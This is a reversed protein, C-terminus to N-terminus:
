HNELDGLPIKLALASWTCEVFAVDVTNGIIESNRRARSLLVLTSIAAERLANTRLTRDKSLEALKLKSELLMRSALVLDTSSFKNAGREASILVASFYVVSHKTCEDLTAKAEEINGTLCAIQAAIWATRYALESMDKITADLIQRNVAVTYIDRSAKLCARMADVHAQADIANGALEAHAQAQLYCALSQQKLNDIGRAGYKGWSAVLADQWNRALEACQKLARLTAEKDGNVEALRLSCEAELYKLRDTDLSLFVRLPIKRAIMENEIDMLRLCKAIWEAKAKIAAHAEENRQRPKAFVTRLETVARFHPLYMPFCPSRQMKIVETLRSAAKDAYEPTVLAHGAPANVDGAELRELAAKAGSRIGSDKDNALAVFLPRAEAIRPAIRDIESRLDGATLDHTKALLQELSSLAPLAFYGAKSLARISALRIGEDAQQIASTMAAVVRPDGPAINGLANIAYERVDEHEDKMALLLAPVAPDAWPGINGLCRCAERRMSSTKHTLLQILMPVADKCVPYKLNDGRWADSSMLEQLSPQSAQTTSPSPVEAELSAIPLMAVCMFLCLVIRGGITQLALTSHYHPNM